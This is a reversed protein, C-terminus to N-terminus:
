SRPPKPRYRPWPRYSQPQLSCLTQGPGTLPLWTLGTEGTIMIGFVLAAGGWVGVTVSWECLTM